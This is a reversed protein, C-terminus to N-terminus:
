NGEMLKASAEVTWNSVLKKHDESLGKDPNRDLYKAPPMKGENIVEGIAELKSVKKSDKFGDWKDYNLAITAKKNSGESSHCDYCSTKLIAEVDAPIDSPPAPKVIFSQFVLLLIGSVLISVILKKM